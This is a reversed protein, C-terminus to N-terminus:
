VSKAKFKLKRFIAEGSGESTFTYDSFEDNSLLETGSYGQGPIRSFSHTESGALYPYILTNMAKTRSAGMEYTCKMYKRDFRDCHLYSALYSEMIETQLPKTGLYIKVKIEKDTYCSKISWDYVQGNNYIVPLVEANPHLYLHAQHIAGLVSVEYFLVFYGPISEEQKVFLLNRDHSGNKVSPGSNGSAYELRYGTIGETIGGGKFDAHIYLAQSEL